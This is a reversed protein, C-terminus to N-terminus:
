VPEARYVHTATDFGVLVVESGQPVTENTRAKLFVPQHEGDVKVEGADPTLRVVATASEGVYSGPTKATSASPPLYKYILAGVTKTVFVAVVAALPIAVFLSLRDLGPYIDHAVATVFLGTCGFSALMVEILVTFPAKGFGMWGLGVAWAPANSVGVDMDLDVDFDTDVDLDLDFSPFMDSLGGTVTEILVFGLAIGLTVLFPLNYWGFVWEIIGEV